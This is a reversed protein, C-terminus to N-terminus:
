ANRYLEKGACDLCIRDGVQAGLREEIAIGLKALVALLEEHTGIGAGRAALDDPVREFVDVEWGLDHLLNAAFLGGLSGGVILARSKMESPLAAGSYIVPLIIAAMFSM